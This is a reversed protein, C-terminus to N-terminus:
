NVTCRNNTNNLNAAEARQKPLSKICLRDVLQTGFTTPSMDTHQTEPINHSDELLHEDERTIHCM